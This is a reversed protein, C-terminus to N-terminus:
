VDGYHQVHLSVVPGTVPLRGKHTVTFDGPKMRIDDRRERSTGGEGFFLTARCNETCYGDDGVAENEVASDFSLASWALLRSPRGGRYRLSIVLVWEASRGRCMIIRGGPPLSSPHPPTYTSPNLNLVPRFPRFRVPLFFLPITFVM